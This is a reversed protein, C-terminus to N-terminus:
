AVSGQAIQDPNFPALFVSQNNQFTVQVYGYRSLSDQLGNLIVTQSDVVGANYAEQQKELIFNQYAPNIWFVYAVVGLLIVVLVLLTSIIWKTRSNEDRM